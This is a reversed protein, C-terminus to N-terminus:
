NPMQQKTLSGAPGFDVIEMEFTLTEYPLISRSGREGYAINYPLYLKYKGGKRMEPVADQWGQIVGNLSFAPVGRGQQEGLYSNEVVEGSSNTLIYHAKVDSGPKVKEGEGEKLVELVYGSAGVKTNPRKKADAIIKEGRQKAGSHMEGQRLVKSHIIIGTFPPILYNNQNPNMLGKEGYAMDYPIYLSYDGGVKMENASLMWGDPFIIEDANLTKANEEPTKTEDMNTSYITDGKANTMTFIIEYEMERQIAEDSGAANEVLVVGNDLVKAGSKNKAEALMDEGIAKIMDNNFDAIMKAREKYDILTDSEVLAQRFGVRAHDPLIKDLADKSEMNTRLMQGFVFGYCNSVEAMNYKSTDIGSPSSFAAELMQQCTEEDHEAATLGNFFGDELAEFNMVSLYEEPMNLFNTAYDAGLGYSLRQEFSDLELKENETGNESCAFLALLPLIILLKKM